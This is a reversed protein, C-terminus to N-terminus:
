KMERWIDGGLEARPSLRAMLRCVPAQRRRWALWAHADCRIAVAGCPLNGAWGGASNAFRGPVPLAGSTPPDRARARLHRRGPPDAAVHLEVVRSAASNTGARPHVM